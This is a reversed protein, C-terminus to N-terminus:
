FKKNKFDKFIKLFTSSLVSVNVYMNFNLLYHTDSFYNNQMSDYADVSVNKILYFLIQKRM